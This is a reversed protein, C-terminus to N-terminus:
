WIIKAGGFGMETPDRRQWEVTVELQAARIDYTSAWTGDREGISM